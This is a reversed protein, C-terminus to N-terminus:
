FLRLSESYRLNERLQRPSRMGVLASAVGPRALAGAIAVAAPPLGNAQARAISGRARAVIEANAEADFRRDRRRLDRRGLGAVTTRGALLGRALIDFAVIPIGEREALAITKSSDRAVNEYEAAYAELTNVPHQIIAPRLAREPSGSEGLLVGLQAATVNSVGWAGVLGRLRLDELAGCSESVPVGADPWHLLYLEIRDRGLRRLSEECQRSLSEPRADHRVRRHDDWTLGGKSVVVPGAARGLAKGLLEESRGFGYVPATDFLNIGADLAEAIAERAPAAPTKGWGHGGLQWGGFGLESIRFETRPVPVTKLAIELSTRHAGITVFRTM